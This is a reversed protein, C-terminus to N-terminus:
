PYFQRINGTAIDGVTIVMDGRGNDQLLIVESESAWGLLAWGSFSRILKKSQMIEVQIQKEGFWGIAITSGSPSFVVKDAVGHFTSILDDVSSEITYTHIQAISKTPDFSSNFAYILTRRDSRLDEWLSYNNKLIEQYPLLQTTLSEIDILQRGFVILRPVGSEGYLPHFRYNDRSEFLVRCKGTLPNCAILQKGFSNFSVLLVETGNSHFGIVYCTNGVESGMQVKHVSQRDLGAIYLENGCNMAVQTGDPSYAKGHICEMQPHWEAFDPVLARDDSGDIRCARLSVLDSVLGLRTQQSFYSIWNGDPSFDAEYAHQRVIRKGSNPNVPMICVQVWKDPHYHCEVLVVRGTPSVKLPRMDRVAIRLYVFVCCSCVMVTVLPIILMGPLIGRILRKGRSCGISIRIVIGLLILAAFFISASTWISKDSPDFDLWRWLFLTSFFLFFTIAFSTAAAIFARRSLASLLAAGAFALLPGILIHAPVLVEFASLFSSSIYGDLTWGSFTFAAFSAIVVSLLAVAFGISLKLTLVPISLVQPESDASYNSKKASALSGAASSVIFLVILILAQIFRHDIHVKKPGMWGIDFVLEFLLAIAIAAYLVWRQKRWESSLTQKFIAM